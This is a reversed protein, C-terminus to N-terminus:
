AGYSKIDDPDVITAIVEDDNIIRVEGGEIQFRSGAYRGICIWDGEKCWPEGEGFKDIDKYALPGVKIVYAVVTARAERERAPDPVYVGGETKEKGMYPMVLVRWGTPQPVRETLSKDKAEKEAKEKAQRQKLVYEPVILNM